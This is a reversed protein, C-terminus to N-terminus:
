TFSGFVLVLPRMGIWESLERQSEGDLAVLSVPPAADGVRLDGDRAQRGYTLVGIVNRPGIYFFACAAVVMVLALVILFVKAIM